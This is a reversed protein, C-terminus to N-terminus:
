LDAPLLLLLALLAAREVMKDRRLHEHLAHAGDGVAGLGDLTATFQSTTNGDSGGGAAGEALKLGLSEGAAVARHWLRRNRPTRELPPRDVAGQIDLSTGATEPELNLILREIRRAEALSPVRVDVVARSHPAIVNPRVGGEVIGVNVSVGNPLDTLAHLKQVVRALELIASAGKEPDLGAHAARGTIAIEFHGVGKRFTKLRGEPGLAPELVFARAAERALAEIAPSSEPSGIEEDSNVLIVPTVAPRRGKARLARLAFIMQALGGKMDFVGPGRIVDPEVVFPMTALTGAAWVTDSHGLLLQSPAAPDRDRPRALLHGGTSRGPVREVQYDLEGLAAALALQAPAQASADLSPSEARVLQELFAIMAQEQAALVARLEAALEPETVM